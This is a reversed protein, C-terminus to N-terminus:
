ADIGASCCEFPSVTVDVPTGPVGVTSAVTTKTCTEPSETWAFTIDVECDAEWPYSGDASEVYRNNGIFLANKAVDKLGDLM